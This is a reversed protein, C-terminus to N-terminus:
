VPFPCISTSIAFRVFVSKLNAINAKGTHIDLLNKQEKAHKAECKLNHMHEEPTLSFVQRIRWQVFLPFGLGYLVFFCGGLAQM